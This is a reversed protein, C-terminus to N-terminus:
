PFPAPQRVCAISITSPENGDAILASPEIDLAATLPWIVQRLSSMGREIQSLAGISVGALRLIPWRFSRGAAAGARAPRRTPM